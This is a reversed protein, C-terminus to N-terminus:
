HKIYKQIGAWIRKRSKESLIGSAMLREHSIYLLRATKGNRRKTKLFRPKKRRIMGGRASMPRLQGCEFSAWVIPSSLGRTTITPGPQGIDFGEPLVFANRM